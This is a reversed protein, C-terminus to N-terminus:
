CHVCAYMYTVNNGAQKLHRILITELRKKEIKSCKKDFFAVNMCNASNAVSVVVMRRGVKSIFPM